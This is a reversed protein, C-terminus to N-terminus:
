RRIPQTRVSIMPSPYIMKWIIYSSMKLLSEFLTSIAKASLQKSRKANNYKWTCHYQRLGETNGSHIYNPFSVSDQAQLQPIEVRDFECLTSFLDNLGVLLTRNTRELQFREM